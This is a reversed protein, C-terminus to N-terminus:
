RCSKGTFIAWFGKTGCRKKGYDVCRICDCHNTSSGCWHLNSCCPAVGDPDCEAPNGDDAPYGQGCRGDDRWKKQSAVFDPCCFRVEYDLCTKDRQDNKKCVFGTTTDYFAFQEGTLSADQGTSIVRAQIATPAPCITGPNETRLDTLTEWDGTWTPDDRDFWATWSACRDNNYTTDVASHGPIYTTDAVPTDISYTIDAALQGHTYATDAAPQGHTYTTDMAPHGHTYTSDLPLASQRTNSTNYVAKMTKQVDRVNNHFYIWTGFGVSAALLTTVIVAVSLRRYTCQCHAEQLANPVDRISSPETSPIHRNEDVSPVDDPTINDETM